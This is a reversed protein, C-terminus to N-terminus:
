HYNTHAHTHVHAHAETHTTYAHSSFFFNYAVVLSWTTNLTHKTKVKETFKETQIHITIQSKWIEWKYIIVNGSTYM